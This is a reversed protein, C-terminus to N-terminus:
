EKNEQLDFGLFSIFKDVNRDSQTFANIIQEKDLLKRKPTYTFNEPVNKGTGRYVLNKYGTTADVREGVIKLVEMKVLKTIESTVTRQLCKGNLANNLLIFIETSTLDEGCNCVMQIQKRITKLTGDALVRNYANASTNM